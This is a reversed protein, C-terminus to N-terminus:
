NVDFIIGCSLIVAWGMPELSEEEDDDEEADEERFLLFSLLKNHTSSM